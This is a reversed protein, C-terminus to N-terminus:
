QQADRQDIPEDAKRQKDQKDQTENLSRSALLYFDMQM